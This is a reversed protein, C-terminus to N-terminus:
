AKPHRKNGVIEIGIDSARERLRGDFTLLPANNVVSASAYLADYLTLDHEKALGMALRALERTPIAQIENFIMTITGEASECQAATIRRKKAFSVWIANLAEALIIDPAVIPEKSATAAYVAAYADESHEETIALKVLSNADIVIM